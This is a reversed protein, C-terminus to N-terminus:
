EEEYVVSYWICGPHHSILKEEIKFERDNELMWSGFEMYPEYVEWETGDEYRAMGHWM